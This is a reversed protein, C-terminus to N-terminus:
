IDFTLVLTFLDACTKGLLQM